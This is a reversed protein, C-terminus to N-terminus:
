ANLAAQYEVLLEVPSRVGAAAAVKPQERPDVLTLAIDPKARQYPRLFQQIQRHVSDGRADNAMAFGTVTVPGDLQKLVELTPASVTNRHTRTLDHEIRYEHAVWALLAALAITLVAFLGDHAALQWRGKPTIEM